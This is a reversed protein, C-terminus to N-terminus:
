RDIDRHRLQIRRPTGDLRRASGAALVVPRHRGGAHGFALAPQSRAELGSVFFPNPLFRVDLVRHVEAPIGYRYGFSLSSFRCRGSGRRGSM